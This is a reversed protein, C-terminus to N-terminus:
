FRPRAAGSVLVLAAYMRQESPQPNSLRYDVFEVAAEGPRLRDRVQQWSVQRTTAGFSAVTRALDKELANTKEELEATNPRAAIPKSLAAALGHSALTPM